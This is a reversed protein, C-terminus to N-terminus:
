RIYSFEAGICDPDIRNEFGRHSVEAVVDGIIGGDIRHEAIRGIEIFEDRGGATVPKLDDQVKNGVM